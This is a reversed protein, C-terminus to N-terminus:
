FITLSLRSCYVLSAAMGLTVVGVAYGMTNFFANWWNSDSLLRGYNDFGGFNESPPIIGRVASIKKYLSLFFAYFIPVFHFFFLIIVAPAIFLYAKLSSRLMKQRKRRKREEDSILGTQPAAAPKIQVTAM